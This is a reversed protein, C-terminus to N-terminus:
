GSRRGAGAARRGSAKSAKRREPRGNPDLVSGGAVTFRWRLPPGYIVRLSRAIEPEDFVEPDDALVARVFTSFSPHRGWRNHRWVLRSRDYWATLIAEAARVKAYHPAEPDTIVDWAHRKCHEQWYHDM